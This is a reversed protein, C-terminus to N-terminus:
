LIYEKITQAVGSHNNDATEIDSIKKVEIVANGMAVSLGALKLMPLDNDMDGVAIVDALDIQLYNTLYTLATGKNINKPFIEIETASTQVVFYNQDYSAHLLRETKALDDKPTTLLFKVIKLDPKLNHQKLWSQYNNFRQGETDILEFQIKHVTFFNILEICDNKTLTKQYIVKGAFNQIMSGGFYIMYEDAGKLGLAKANGIVGNYDRGSCLVIKTGTRIASKITQINEATIEQADNLLTGDIDIAMLKYTM